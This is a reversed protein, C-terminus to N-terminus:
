FKVISRFLAGLKIFQLMFNWTEVSVNPHDFGEGSEKIRKM